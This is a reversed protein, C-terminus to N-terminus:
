RAEVRRLLRLSGRCIDAGCQRHLRNVPGRSYRYWHLARHLHASPEDGTDVPIGAAAVVDVAAAMVAIVADDCALFEALAPPGSAAMTHLAVLATRVRRYRVEAGVVALRALVRDLRSLRRMVAPLAVAETGQQLALVGHAIGFLDLTDLLRARVNLPVSHGAALFGDTSTLDAPESTLTRLAAVLDDDLAAVALLGVMSVTPVGTLASIEAARRDAVAIPGGAAGFGALDAKNLVMLTPGVGLMARDEPKLAEAVVVVQVDAGIDDDAVSLGAAALAAAVTGRGVGDRGAVAVRLPADLEGILATLRSDDARRAFRTLENTFIQHGERNATERVRM